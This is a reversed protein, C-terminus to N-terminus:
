FTESRSRPQCECFLCVCVWVMHHTLGVTVFHILLIVSFSRSFFFFFNESNKKTEDLISNLVIFVVDTRIKEAMDNLRKTSSFNRGWFLLLLLLFCFSQVIIITIFSVFHFLLTNVTFNNWKPQPQRPLICDNHQRAIWFNTSTFFSERESDSLSFSFTLNQLVTKVKNELKTFSLTHSNTEDNTIFSPQITKRCFPM